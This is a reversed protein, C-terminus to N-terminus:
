GALSHLIECIWKRVEPRQVHKEGRVRTSKGTRWTAVAMAGGGFLQCYQCLAPQGEYIMIEKRKIAPYYEMTHIYVVNQRDIWRNISVEVTEVKQSKHLISSYVHTYLYWNSDRNESPHICLFPLLTYNLINKFQNRCTNWQGSSHWTIDGQQLLILHFQSCSTKM